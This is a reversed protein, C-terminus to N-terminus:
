KPRGPFLFTEVLSTTSSTVEFHFAAHGDSILLDFLKADNQCISDVHVKISILTPTPFPSIVALRNFSKEKELFM